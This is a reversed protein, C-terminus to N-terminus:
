RIVVSFRIRGCDGSDSSAATTIACGDVTTLDDLVSGSYSGDDAQDRKLSGNLTAVSWRIRIGAVSDMISDTSQVLMTTEQIFEDMANRRSFEVIVQTDVNDAMWRAHTMRTDVGNTSYFSDSGNANYFPGVNYDVNSDLFDIILISDARRNGDNDYTIEYVITAGPVTDRARANTDTGAGGQVAMRYGIPAFISDTKKVRVVATAVLVWISVSDQSSGRGYHSDNDGFYGSDDWIRTHRRGGYAVSNYESDGICLVTICLSDRAFANTDSAIRLYFSTEAEEAILVSLVHPYAVVPSGGNSATTINDVRGNPGVGTEPNVGLGVIFKDLLVAEESDYTGGTPPRGVHFDTDPFNILIVFSCSYNSTNYINILVAATDNTELMVIALSDVVPVTDGSELPLPWRPYTEGSVGSFGGFGELGPLIQRSRSDVDYICEITLEATPVGLVTDSVYTDSQTGAQAASTRVGNGKTYGVFLRGPLSDASTNLDAPVGNIISSDMNTAGAWTDTQNPPYAEAPCVIMTALVLGM